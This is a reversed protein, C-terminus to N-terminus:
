QAKQPPPQRLSPHRRQKQSLLRKPSIAPWVPRTPVGLTILQIPSSATRASIREAPDSAAHARPPVGLLAAAVSLVVAAFPKRGPPDTM